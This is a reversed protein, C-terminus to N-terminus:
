SRRRGKKIAYDYVELYQDVVREYDFQKVYELGWDSMMRRLDPNELLLQIRRSFETTNTPDVLSLLGKERLVWSYGSNDGALLPTGCAMAEVLVIGFAEGYISPYCALTASRLLRIKEKGTVFGKFEVKSSVGLNHALQELKSRERGDGVIILRADPHIKNVHSFAEVLYQAGKRKELRNIYLITKKDRKSSPHFDTVNVGNPVDIIDAGDLLDELYEGAPGSVKTFVDVHELVSRFFPKISGLTKGIVTDPLAAHLTAVVPYPCEAILQRAVFPVVPEHFHMVDFTYNVYLNKIEAIDVAASVDPTSSQAKVKTSVGIFLTGHPPTDKYGRPRPTVITVEHGRSRLIKVQNEVIDQVGGPRIISYPSFIGIRM